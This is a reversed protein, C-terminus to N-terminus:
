AAFKLIQAVYDPNALLRVHGQGQATVLTTHESAEALARSHRFATIPDKPDHIVLVPRDFRPALAQPMFDRATMGTDGELGRQLGERIEESLFHAKVWLQTLKIIDYFPALLVLHQAKVRHHATAWASAAGGLSHGVLLDVPGVEDAVTILTSLSIPLGALAGGSAGHGLHDFAIVEWGSECAACILAAFNFAYGEWGHCLLMRKRPQKSRVGANLWRYCQVSEGRHQIDFREAGAIMAELMPEAERWQRATWDFYKMSDARLQKLPPQGRMRRAPTSFKEVTLAFADDPSRKYTRLVKQRFALTDSAFRLIDLPSPNILELM